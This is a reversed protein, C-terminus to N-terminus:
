RAPRQLHLDISPKVARRPAAEGARPLKGAPGPLQAAGRRDGGGAEPAGRGPGGGLVQARARRARPPPARTALVRVNEAVGQEWARNGDTRGSSSGDAHVNVVQPAEDDFSVAYRLGQGGTFDLTPSLYARVTVTDAGFLHVRYELRPAGGGPTQPPATVPSPTMASLTRGLEPIRRWRVGRSNVARTFHEAEMSVYGGGEVFGRVRGPRPSAPNHVVAQVVVPRGGAGAVTVPVRHMGHPARDWDVSVWIREEKAVTGRESSVRVWPEGTRVTYEVPTRGRNYLELYRRQRGYADMEPLAPERPRGAGAPGDGGPPGGAPQGEWAVGLEGAIPVQIVDVRPMVNRPPEQWYTYGIHTQDMMHSWKGGALQTDYFRSIEADREFLRRARDALDNTAARGQRAYLGTALWPSTCTTSTPPRRCRTCCSSTTPTAPKRLCRPASREARGALAAYGAVM